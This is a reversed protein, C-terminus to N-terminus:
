GDSKSSTPDGLTILSCEITGLTKGHDGWDAQGLVARCEHSRPQDVFVFCVFTLNELRVLRCWGCDRWTIGMRM